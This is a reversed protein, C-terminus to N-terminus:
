RAKCLAVDYLGGAQLALYVMEWRHDLMFEHCAKPIGYPIFGNPTVQAYDNLIIVGNDKIKHVAVAIDKKVGEYSHDADIYILDFYEDDFGSLVTDSFGQRVEVRADQAFRGAYYQQHSKGKLVDEIKRGWLEELGDMLTLVDIGVFKEIALEQLLFETFDGFGVGVETVVLGAPLERALRRILEYRDTVLRCNCLLEDPLNESPWHKWGGKAVRRVELGALETLLKKIQRKM